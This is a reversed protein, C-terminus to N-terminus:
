QEELTYIGDESSVSSGKRWEENKGAEKCGNKWEAAIVFKISIVVLWIFFSDKTKLDREFYGKEIKNRRRTGLM